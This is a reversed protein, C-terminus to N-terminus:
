MGSSWCRWRTRRRNVTVDAPSAPCNRWDRHPSRRLRPAGADFSGALEHAAEVALLDGALGASYWFLFGRLVTPALLRDRLRATVEAHAPNGALRLLGAWFGGFWGGDRSWEWEGTVPDAYMPFRGRSQELTQQIRMLM